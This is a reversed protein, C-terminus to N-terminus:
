NCKMKSLKLSFLILDKLLIISIYLLTLRAINDTTFLLCMIVSTHGSFTLLINKLNVKVFFIIKRKNELTNRKKEINKYKKLELLLIERWLMGLLCFLSLSEIIEDDTTHYFVVFLLSIKLIDSFHDYRFAHRRVFGTLRALQGDAHDVLVSFLWLYFSLNAYREDMFLLIAMLFSINGISTLSNPTLNLKKSLIVLPIAVKFASYSIINDKWSIKSKIM